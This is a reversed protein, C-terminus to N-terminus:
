ERFFGKCIWKAIFSVICGLILVILPIFFINFIFFGYAPKAITSPPSQYSELEFNLSRLQYLSNENITKDPDTKNGIAIQRLEKHINLLDDRQKLLKNKDGYFNNQETELLENYNNYYNAIYTLGENNSWCFYVIWLLTGIFWIRLLGSKWNIM